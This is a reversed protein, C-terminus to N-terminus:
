SEDVGNKKNTKLYYRLRDRTIGLLQSARTVNNSTERLAQGILYNQAADLSIGEAPFTIFQELNDSSDAQKSDNSNNEANLIDKPLYRLTIQSGDEFIMAREIANKLERVNGKWKYRRFATEAERSLTFDSNSSDIGRSCKELFHRALIIVDEGRARLPPIDLQVVALRYYLDHRFDGSDSAAKLDRNSAAIVRVDLPYDTVGGVRRFSSEELVRLLKSQLGLEMEGIEDLFVTGGSAQELLGQKANKADTFSGKEHGFLESEILNAPIAACNIAIFPKAGRKSSYHIAKAFLDKGTGSEGQLLVSSVNSVAIREGLNKIEKIVESEGIIQAFSFQTTKEKSFTKVERRLERAEIANRIKLHIEELDIPKGIFDYAGYRLAALTDDILVNATIMIVIAEPQQKKIERLVDLGSGDPLNIDLLTVVPNQAAFADLAASKSAAESASFGWEKLSETLTWRILKEDDVVLIKKNM